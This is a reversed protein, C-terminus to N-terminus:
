KQNIQDLGDVIAVYIDFLEKALTFLEGFSDCYMKLMKKLEFKIDDIVIKRDAKLHTGNNHITNRLAGCFQLVEIDKKWNRKYNDKIVEKKLYNYKSPLDVYKSFKKLYDERDDEFAKLVIKEDINNCGEYLKKLYKKMDKFQSENLMEQIQSDYENCILNICAEFGTWFDVYFDYFQARIIPNHNYMVLNAFYNKLKQYELESTIGEGISMLHYCLADLDKNGESEGLMDKIFFYMFQDVATAALGYFLYRAPLEKQTVDIKRIDREIAIHKALEYLELMWKTYVNDFKLTRETDGKLKYFTNEENKWVCEIRETKM